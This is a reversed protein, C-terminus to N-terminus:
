VSLLRHQVGEFDQLLRFLEAALRTAFARTLAASAVGAFPLNSFPPQLLVALADRRAFTRGIVFLRSATRLAPIM